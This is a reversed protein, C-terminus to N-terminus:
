TDNEMAERYAASFSALAKSLANTLRHCIECAKIISNLLAFEIDDETIDRKDYASQYSGFLACRITATENAENRSYGESMLLKVFRKRTM